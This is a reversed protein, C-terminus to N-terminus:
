VPGLVLCGGPGKSERQAQIYEPVKLSQGELQGQMGGKFQFLTTM